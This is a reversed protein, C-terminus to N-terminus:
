RASALHLVAPLEKWYWTQPFILTQRQACMCVLCSHCSSTSVQCVCLIQSLFLRGSTEIMEMEKKYWEEECLETSLLLWGLKIVIVPYSKHSQTNVRLSSAIVWWKDRKHSTLPSSLLASSPLACQQSVVEMDFWLSPLSTLTFSKVLMNLHFWLAKEALMLYYGGVTNGHKARNINHLDSM